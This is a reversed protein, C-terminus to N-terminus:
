VTLAFKSLWHAPSTAMSSAVYPSVVRSSDDTSYLASVIRSFPIDAISHTSSLLLQCSARFVFATGVKDAVAAADAAADSAPIGESHQTILRRPRPRSMRSMSM